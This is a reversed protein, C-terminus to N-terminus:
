RWGYLRGFMGTTDKAGQPGYGLSRQNFPFFYQNGEEESQNADFISISQGYNFGGVNDPTNHNPYSDGYNTEGSDLKSILRRLGM